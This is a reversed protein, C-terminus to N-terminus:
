SAPYCSSSISAQWGMSLLWKVFLQVPATSQIFRFSHHGMVALIAIGRIGDLAILKGAALSRPRAGSRELPAAQAVATM